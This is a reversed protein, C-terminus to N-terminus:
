VSFNSFKIADIFSYLEQAYRTKPPGQFSDIDISPKQAESTRKLEDVGTVKRLTTQWKNSHEKSHKL